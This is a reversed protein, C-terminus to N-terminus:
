NPVLDAQDVIYVIGPLVVVSNVVCLFLLESQLREFLHAPPYLSRGLTDVRRSASNRGGALRITRDASDLLLNLLKEFIDAFLCRKVDAGRFPEGRGRNERDALMREKGTRSQGSALTFTTSDAESREQGSERQQAPYASFTQSAQVAECIIQQHKCYWAHMGNIKSIVTM